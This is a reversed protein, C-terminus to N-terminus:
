RILVLPEAASKKYFLLPLQYDEKEKANVVHLAPELSPQVLAVLRGNGYYCLRANKVDFQVVEGRRGLSIITEKWENRSDESTTYTAKELEALKIASLKEVGAYNKKQLLAAVRQYATVVEARVSPLNKLDIGRQWGVITYPVAAKFTFNQRVETLGAKNPTVQKFTAVDVDAQGQEGAMSKTIKIQLSANLGITAQGRIPLLVCSLSQEGSQLILHNIPAESSVSGADTYTLAPVDNVLIIFRCNASNFNVQYVPRKSLVAAMQKPAGNTVAQQGRAIGQPTDMTHVFNYATTIDEGALPSIAKISGVQVFAYVEKKGNHTGEGSMFRIFLSPTIWYYARTNGDDRIKKTPLKYTVLLHKLLQNTTATLNTHIDYYAIIDNVAGVKVSEDMILGAYTCQNTHTVEYKVLGREGARKEAAVGKLFQGAHETFLVRALDPSAANSCSANFTIM